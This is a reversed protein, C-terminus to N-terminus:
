IHILSLELFGGSIPHTPGSLPPRKRKLSLTQRDAANRKAVDSAVVEVVEVMRVSLATSPATSHATSHASHASHSSAADDEYDMAEDAEEEDDEDEDEDEDSKSRKARQKGKAAAAATAAPMRARRTIEARAYSQFLFATAAELDNIPSVQVMRRLRPDSLMHVLLVWSAWVNVGETNDVICHCISRLADVQQPVRQRITGMEIENQAFVRMTDLFSHTTMRTPM